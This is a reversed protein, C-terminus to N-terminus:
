DWLADFMKKIRERRAETEERDIAFAEGDCRLVDGPSADEPLAGAPYTLTERTDMDECVAYGEEFRDLVM